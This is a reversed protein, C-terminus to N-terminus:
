SQLCESGVNSLDGFGYCLRQIDADDGEFAQCLSCLSRPPEDLARIDDPRASTFEGNKLVAAPELDYCEGGQDVRISFRKGGPMERMITGTFTCHFEEHENWYRWDFEVRQGRTFKATRDPCTFKVSTIGLGRIAAIMAKRRECGEFIACNFCTRFYAM